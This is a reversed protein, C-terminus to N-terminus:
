VRSRRIIKKGGGHGSESHPNGSGPGHPVYASQTRLQLNKGACLLLPTNVPPGDSFPVVLDM